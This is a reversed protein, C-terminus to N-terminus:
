SWSEPLRGVFLRRTFTGDAVQTTNGIYHWGWPQALLRDSDPDDHMNHTELVILRAKSEIAMDMITKFSVVKASSLIWIIDAIPWGTKANVDAHELHVREIVDWEESVRRGLEISNKDKDFGYFQTLPNMHCALIGHMGANCAPELIVGSAFERPILAWRDCTREGKIFGSPLVLMQYPPRGANTRFDEVSFDAPPIWAPISKAGITKALSVRHVGDFRCMNIRPEKDYEVEMSPSIKIPMWEAVPTRLLSRWRNRSALRDRKEFYRMVGTSVPLADEALNTKPDSIFLYCERSLWSFYSSHVLDGCLNDIGVMKVHEICSCCIRSTSESPFSKVIRNSVSGCYQCDNDM